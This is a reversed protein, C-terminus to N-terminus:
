LRQRRREKISDISEIVQTVTSGLLNSLTLFTGQIYTKAIVNICLSKSVVFAWYPKARDQRM